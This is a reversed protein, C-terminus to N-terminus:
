INNATNIEFKINQYQYQLLITKQLIKKNLFVNFYYKKINVKSMM